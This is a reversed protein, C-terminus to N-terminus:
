DLLSLLAAENGPSMRLGIIAEHPIKKLSHRELEEILKTQVMLWFGHQINTSQRVAEQSIELDITTLQISIKMQLTIPADHM